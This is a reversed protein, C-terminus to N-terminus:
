LEEKKKVFAIESINAVEVKCWDIHKDIYEEETRVMYHSDTLGYQELQRFMKLSSRSEPQEYGKL